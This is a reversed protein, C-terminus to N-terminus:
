SLMLCESDQDRNKSSSNALPTKLFAVCSLASHIHHTQGQCAEMNRFGTDNNKSKFTIVDRARFHCIAVSIGSDKISFLIFIDYSMRITVKFVHKPLRNCHGKTMERHLRENAKHHELIIPPTPSSLPTRLIRLLITSTM